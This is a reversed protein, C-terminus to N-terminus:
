VTNVNYDIVKGYLQGLRNVDSDFMKGYLQAM